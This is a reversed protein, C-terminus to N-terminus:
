NSRSSLGALVTLQYAIEAHLSRVHAPALLECAYEIRCTFAGHRQIFEVKLPHQARLPTISEIVTELGRFEVRADPLHQYAFLLDCWPNGSPLSAPALARTLESFATGRRRLLERLNRHVQELAAAPDPGALRERTVLLNVYYGMSQEQASTNRLNVPMGICIEDIGTLARVALRLATLFVASHMLGGHRAAALAGEVSAAGLAREDCGMAFPWQKSATCPWSRLRDAGHLYDRWWCLDSEPTAVQRLCFRRFEADVDVPRSGGNQTAANYAEALHRLLVAGSWGDTIVHHICLMLAYQESGTEVVAVRCLPGRELDFSEAAIARLHQQATDAPMVLHELRIDQPAGITCYLRQADIDFQLHARLLEHRQVLRNVAETLAAIQVKGTMHLVVAANYLGSSDSALEALWLAAQGSTCPFRTDGTEASARAAPAEVDQGAVIADVCRRAMKRPTSFQAVDRLELEVGLRERIRTLIRLLDLSDGGSLFFNSDATLATRELVERWAALVPELPMPEHRM